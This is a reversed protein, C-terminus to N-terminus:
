DDFDDHEFLQGAYHAALQRKLHVAAIQSLQAVRCGNLLDHHLTVPTYLLAMSEPMLDPIAPLYCYNVLHDYRRLDDIAGAKIAGAALLDELPLVPALVRAPHAYRGEAGQAAMSCSPSLLLAFGVDFPGSVFKRRGEVQASADAPFPYSRPVDRFLDGQRYWDTRDEYYAEDAPRPEWNPPAM